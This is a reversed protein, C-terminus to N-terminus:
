RRRMMHAYPTESTFCLDERVPILKLKMLKSTDLSCVAVIPNSTHKYVRGVQGPGNTILLVLKYRGAPV